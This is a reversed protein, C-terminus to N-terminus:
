FFSPNLTHWWGQVELDWKPNKKRRPEEKPEEEKEESVNFRKPKQKTPKQQKLHIADLLTCFAWRWGWVVSQLHTDASRQRGDVWRVWVVM